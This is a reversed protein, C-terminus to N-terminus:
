EVIVGPITRRTPKTWRKSYFTYDKLSKGASVSVKNAEGANVAHKGMKRLM